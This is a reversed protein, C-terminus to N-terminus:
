HNDSVDDYGNESAAAAQPKSETNPTSPSTTTASQSAAAPTTSSGATAAPKTPPASAVHSATEAKILKAEPVPAQPHAQSPAPAPKTTPSM